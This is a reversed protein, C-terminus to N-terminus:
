LFSEEVEQVTSSCITGASTTISFFFAAAFDPRIASIRRTAPDYEAQVTKWIRDSWYGTARTYHMQASQIEETHDLKASFTKETDPSILFCVPVSNRNKLIRDAFDTLEPAEESVPGHGHPMNPKIALYNKGNHAALSGSLMELTFAFDNTGTLWLFPQAAHPLFFAPDWLRKWADFATDSVQSPFCLGSERTFCGCGYVPMALQFRSDAGAALCTLYGGWSVGTIGIKGADVEPLSRLLSHASVVAALGHYGWTDEAKETLAPTMPERGTAPGGASHQPFPADSSYSQGLKEQPPIIGCTDMAIAAYGHSNWYRVWHPFATGLGGHVLVMGPVPNEPSANEPLGIWAFVKTKKGHFPVSGYLVAKVGPAYREPFDAYDPTEFCSSPLEIMDFIGM